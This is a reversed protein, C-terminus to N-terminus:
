EGTPCEKMLCQKPLQQQQKRDILEMRGASLVLWQTEDQGEVEWSFRGERKEM